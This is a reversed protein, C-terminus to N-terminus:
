YHLKVQLQTAVGHIQRNKNCQETLKELDRMFTDDYYVECTTALQLLNLTCNQKLQEVIHLVTSQHLRNDSSPWIMLKEVSTNEVALMEVLLVCDCSCIDVNSFILETIAKNFKAAQVVSSMTHYHFYGWKFVLKNISKNRSIGGILTHYAADSGNCLEICELSCTSALSDSIMGCEKPVTFSISKVRHLASPLSACCSTMETHHLGVHEMMNPLSQLIADVGEDGLPNYSIDISNLASHRMNLLGKLHKAGIATIGNNYLGLYELTTNSRLQEVLKQVGNDGINNSCLYASTISKSYHLLEGIKDTGKVGLQCDCIILKSLSTNRCGALYQYEGPGIEDHSIDLIALTKNITLIEGLLKMDSSRLLSYQLQLEKMFPNYQLLQFINWHVSLKNDGIDLKMIPYNPSLLSAIQSNSVDTINNSRMRLDLQSSNSRSMLSKLLIRCGQDGVDCGSVDVLKLPSSYRELLYGLASCSIEDLKCLSLDINSDLHDGLLQLLEDNHAEYLLHLMDVIRRSRYRSIVSKSPLMCHFIETNNLGTIGAYFRWIVKFRCNFQYMKFCRYQEQSPLMSIYFASCFEQITLHLFNCSKERGHVSTSPAIHLLGLGNMKNLDMGYKKLEHSSFVIKDNESGKYSIECLKYFHKNYPIPLEQLSDIYDIEEMNYKNVQRLILNKCLLIYLETLTEPLSLNLLFLHCIIAINIPVYLISRIFLNNKVLSSLKSAKEKGDEENEFANSIYDYVQEEKFGRIEVRRTALQRLKECVEPRSTYIMTCKPLKDMLKTFISAKQLGDPLEDFGEFLFCINDGNRKIIEKYVQDRLEDDVILLVDKITKAAQIETDRLSLLVVADYEKLLEGDAWCKCMKIALTSKGMGPGGEILIVKKEEQKVDLLDALTLASEQSPQKHKSSRMVSNLLGSVLEERSRKTRKDILTLKLNVYESSRCQLLEDPSILQLSKYKDQLQQRYNSMCDNSNPYHSPLKGLLLIFLKILHVFSLSYSYVNSQPQVTICM